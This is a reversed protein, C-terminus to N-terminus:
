VMDRYFYSKSSEVEKLRIKVIELSSIRTGGISLHLNHYKCTSHSNVISFNLWITLSTGQEHEAMKDSKGNFM